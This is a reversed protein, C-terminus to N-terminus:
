EGILKHKYLLKYIKSTLDGVTYAFNEESLNNSTTLQNNGYVLEYIHLAAHTVEHSVVGAGLHDQSLYITAVTQGHLERGDIHYRTCLGAIQTETAKQLSHMNDFIKVNVKAPHLLWSTQIVFAKVLM